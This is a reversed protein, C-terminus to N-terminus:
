IKWLQGSNYTRGVKFYGKIVKCYFNYQVSFSVKIYRYKILLVPNFGNKGKLNRGRDV